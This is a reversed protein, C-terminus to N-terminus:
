IKVYLVICYMCPMEEQLESHCIASCVHWSADEVTQAVLHRATVYEPMRTENDMKSRLDGGDGEESRRESGGARSTLVGHLVHSLRLEDCLRSTGLEM